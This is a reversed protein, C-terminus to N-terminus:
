RAGIPPAAVVKRSNYVYYIIRWRPPVDDEQKFEQFGHLKQKQLLEGILKESLYPM